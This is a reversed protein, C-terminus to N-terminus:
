GSAVYDLTEATDKNSLMMRVKGAPLALNSSRINRAWVISTRPSASTRCEVVAGGVVADVDHSRM